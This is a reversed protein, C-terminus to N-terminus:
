PLVDDLPLELDPFALPRLTEGRTFRRAEGYGTPAPDRYVHVADDALDVVWYEAIGYRAYVDRKIGRDIGASAHAVEILLLVDAPAPHSKTYDDARPRIVAVDPQPESIDSLRVPNQIAALARGSLGEGLLRNLRNVCGAHASGIPPMEVIEGEILEVREDQGLVGTEALRYYEDVTFRRTPLPISM